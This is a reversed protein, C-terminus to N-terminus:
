LSHEKKIVALWRFAWHWRLSFSSFGAKRILQMLENKRFARKVSLPGDNKVMESRSFLKTLLKIGALAFVSRQLDNIIIGYRTVANFNRFLHIIENESFHHMFLSSHVIDFSNKKFPMNIADACIVDYEPKSEQILKCSKKNIDLSTIKYDKHHMTVMNFVGSNGAGIDLVSIIRNAPIFRFIERFGRSSTTNGGLFINIIDLENLAIELRHDTISFDDMIEPTYHRKLLM